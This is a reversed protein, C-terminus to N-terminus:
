AAIPKLERRVPMIGLYHEWNWYKKGEITSNFPIAIKARPTSDIQVNSYIIKRAKSEIKLPYGYYEQLYIKAPEGEFIGQFIKVYDNGIMNEGLYKADRFLTMQEYPDYQHYKEYDVLRYEKEGCQKCTALATKSVRDMQVADIGETKEFYVSQYRELQYVEFKRDNDTDELTFQWSQIKSARRVMESFKTINTQEGRKDVVERNKDIISKPMELSKTENKAAEKTKCGTVTCGLVLLAMLLIPIYKM